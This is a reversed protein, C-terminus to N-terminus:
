SPLHVIFFYMSVEAYRIAPNKLRQRIGEGAAVPV